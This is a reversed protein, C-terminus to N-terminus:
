GPSHPPFAVRVVKNPSGLLMSPAILMHQGRRVGGGSDDNVSGDLSLRSGIAELPFQHM